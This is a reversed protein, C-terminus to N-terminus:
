STAGSRMVVGIVLDPVGRQRVLFESPDVSQLVGLRVIAGNSAIPTEEVTKVGDVAGYGLLIRTLGAQLM